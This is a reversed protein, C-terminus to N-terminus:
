AIIVTKLPAGDLGVCSELFYHSVDILLSIGVQIKEFIRQCLHFAGVLIKGLIYPKFVGRYYILMM